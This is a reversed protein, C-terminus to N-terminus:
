PRVIQEKIENSQYKVAAESANLQLYCLAIHHRLSDTFIKRNGEQKLQVIERILSQDHVHVKDEANAQKLMQLYILANEPEDIKVSMLYLDQLNSPSPDLLYAKKFYLKASTYDGSEFSLRGAYIYYITHYPDELMVAETAKLALPKDSAKMSYKFVQDMAEMWTIRDVALAGAIKEETGRGPKFDAAIPINFPWGTKLMMMQYAGYLSDVKTVPMHKLLDAFSMEAGPLPKLLKSLKMEQYFAESLLAYGYLNPHVHELLTEEGLIGNPSYREFIRRSDTLYVGPYTAAIKKISKNIAEPARFRLLDLEKAQIYQTKASKYDAKAYAANAQHYADNASPKESGSIFPKMDKENSVLTSIFVPIHQGSLLKCVANMNREFQEIGKKYDASGYQIQQSAAMRQMLNDRTDISKGSFLQQVGHIGNEIFQVLRFERLRLVTEKWFYSGAIRSSSGTGLAGYYENHGAYILVADPLYPIIQKGFNLVTYSNVATLSVNIIEFNLDPFTHMLRYQLWRHFSGNHMYPYGATTSEGLVFIRFTHPAKVIKFKERNGKTANVPNSFFKYSAYKNMVYCTPDDPDKIFLDTQYGYGFLRLGIEILCLILVPVIFALIKFWILKQKNL